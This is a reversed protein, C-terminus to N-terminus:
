HDSLSPSFVLAPGDPRGVDRNHQCGVPLRGAARGAARAASGAPPRAPPWPCFFAALVWSRRLGDYHRIELPPTRGSLLNVVTESLTSYVRLSEMDRMRPLLFWSCKLRLSFIQNVLNRKYQECVTYTFFFFSYRNLQCITRHPM